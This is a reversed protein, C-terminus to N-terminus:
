YIFQVDGIEFRQFAGKVSCIVMLHSPEQRRLGNDHSQFADRSKVNVRHQGRGIVVLLDRARTHFARDVTM